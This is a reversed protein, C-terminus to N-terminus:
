NGVPNKNLTAVLNTIQTNIPTSFQTILIYALAVIAALIVLYETMGQGKHNRLNKM